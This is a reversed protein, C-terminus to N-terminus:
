KENSGETGPTGPVYYPKKPSWENLPTSPDVRVFSQPIVMTKLEQDYYNLAYNTFSTPNGQVVELKYPGQIQNQRDFFDVTQGPILKAAAAHPDASANAKNFLDLLRSM